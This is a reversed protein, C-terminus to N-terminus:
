CYNNMFKAFGSSSGGRHETVKFIEEDEPSFTGTELPKKDESTNVMFMSVGEHTRGASSGAKASDHKATSKSTGCGATGPAKFEATQM